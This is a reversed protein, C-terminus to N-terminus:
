IEQLAPAANLCERIVLTGGAALGFSVILNSPISPVFGCIDLRSIGTCAATVAADYSALRADRM